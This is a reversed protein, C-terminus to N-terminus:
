MCLKLLPTTSVRYRTKSKDTTTNATPILMATMFDLLCAHTRLRASTEIERQGPNETEHDDNEQVVDRRAVIPAPVPRALAQERQRVSALLDKALEVLVDLDVHEESAVLLVERIDLRQELLVGRDSTADLDFPDIGISIARAILGEGVLEADVAPKRAVHGKRLDRDDDRTAVSLPLDLPMLEDDLVELAELVHVPLLEVELGLSGQGASDDLYRGACGGFDAEGGAVPLPLSSGVAVPAEVRDSPLQFPLLDVDFRELNSMLVDRLRAVGEEDDAGM